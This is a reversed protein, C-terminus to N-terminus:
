IVQKFEPSYKELWIIEDVCLFINTFNPGLPSGTAARDDLRYYENDTLVLNM